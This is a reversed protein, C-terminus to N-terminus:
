HRTVCKEADIKRQVHFKSSPHCPRLKNPPLCSHLSLQIFLDMRLLRNWEKSYAPRDKRGSLNNPVTLNRPVMDTQDFDTSNQILHHKLRFDDMNNARNWTKISERRNRGPRPVPGEVRVSRCYRGITRLRLSVAQFKRLPFPRLQIWFYSKRTLHAVRQFDLSFHDAKSVYRLHLSDCKLSIFIIRNVGVGSRIRSSKFEVHRIAFLSM